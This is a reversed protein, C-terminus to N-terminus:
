LLNTPSAPKLSRPVSPRREVPRGVKEAAKMGLEMGSSIGRDTYVVTADAADLWVLGAKIGMMRETADDDDLVGPQTYLLHSALPAEGMYVSHRICARAYDVNQSRVAPDLNRFPSELIVRRLPQEENSM